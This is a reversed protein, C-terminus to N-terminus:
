PCFRLEVPQGAVMLHGRGDFTPAVIRGNRRGAVMSYLCCPDPALRCVDASPQGNDTGLVVVEPTGRDGDIEVVELRDFDYSQPIDSGYGPNGDAGLFHSYRQGGVEVELAYSREFMAGDRRVRARVAGFRERALVACPATCSTRGVASM